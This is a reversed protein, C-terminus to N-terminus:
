QRSFLGSFQKSFITLM